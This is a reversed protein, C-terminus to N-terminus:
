NFQVDADSLRNHFYKSSAKENLFESFEFNLARKENPSAKNDSPDLLDATLLHTPPTLSYM